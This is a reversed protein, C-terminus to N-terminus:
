ITKNKFVHKIQKATQFGSYADMSIGGNGVPSPAWHGAVFLGKIQCSFDMMKLGTTSFVSGWGKSAGKYNLTYKYLTHPVAIEKHAIYSRLNPIMYEADEIMKEAVLFKNNDWYKKSRYPTFKFFFISEGDKPALSPDNVSSPVFVMNKLSPNFHNIVDYRNEPLSEAYYLTALGRRRNRELPRNLGLFVIFPSPSPAINSIRHIFNLNHHEKGILMFYTQIPDCTSVVHNTSFSIGKAVNISVVGRDKLDIKSVKKSLIISGDFSKYTDLFANSFSQMGGIPYYGSDMIFARCYSFAAIADLKSPILGFSSCMAFWFNKLREDLFYEDLLEKFSRNKLKNYLSFFIPKEFLSFFDKIQDKEKPFHYELQRRTEGYDTKLPIVQDNTM